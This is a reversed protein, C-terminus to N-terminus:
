KFILEDKIPVLYADPKCAKNLANEAHAMIVALTVQESTMDHFYIPNGEVEKWIFVDKKFERYVRTIYSYTMKSSTPFNHVRIKGTDEWITNEDIKYKM